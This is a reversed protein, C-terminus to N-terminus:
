DNKKILFPYSVYGKEKKDRRFEGNKDRSFYSAPIEEGVSEMDVIPNGALDEAFVKVIKEKYLSGDGSCDFDGSWVAGEIEPKVEKEKGDTKVLLKEVRKFDFKKGDIIAYVYRMPESFGIILKYNQGPTFLLPKKGSNLVYVQRDKDYKHTEEM